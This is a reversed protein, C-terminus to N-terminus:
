VCFTYFFVTINLIIGSRQKNLESLDSEFFYIFLYFFVYCCFLWRSVTIESVLCVSLVRIWIKGKPIFNRRTYTLYGSKNIKKICWGNMKLDAYCSMKTIVLTFKCFTQDSFTILVNPSYGLHMTAYKYTLNMPSVKFDRYRLNSEQIKTCNSRKCCYLILLSFSCGWLYHLWVATM